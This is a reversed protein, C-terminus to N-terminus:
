AIMAEISASSSDAVSPSQFHRESSCTYSSNPDDARRHCSGRDHGPRDCWAGRRDRFGRNHGRGDCGPPTAAAASDLERSTHRPSPSTIGLAGCRDAALVHLRPSRRESTQAGMPRGECGAGSQPLGGGDPLSRHQPSRASGQGGSHSSRESCRREDTRFRGRLPGLPLPNEPIKV